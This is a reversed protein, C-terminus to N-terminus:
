GWPRRPLARAIWVGEALEGFEAPDGAATWREVRLRLSEKGQDGVALGLFWQCAGGFGAPDPKGAFLTSGGELRWRERFIVRGDLRFELHNAMSGFAGREGSGTRGDAWGDWYTFDAGSAVDIEVTQDVHAGACPISVKPVFTLRCDEAVELRTRVLCVGNRDASPFYLASAPAMWDVRGGQDVVVEIQLRDGGRTGGSQDTPIALLGDPRELVTLSLPPRQARRWLRGSVVFELRGDYTTGTM